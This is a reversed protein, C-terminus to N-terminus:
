LDSLVHDCKKAIALEENSEVVLCVPWVDLPSLVGNTTKGNEANLDNTIEISILPKLQELCRRRIHASNRGIGATFVLADLCGQFAVASAAIYQALRYVFMEVALMADQDGERKKELLRVMSREAGQMMGKLGSNKNLDLLVEDASKGLNEVAYSVIAPDVSGTRTSMMLGALPSFGMSTEVSKQGSVATVSAGSGLHCVIINYSQSEKRTRLIKAAKDAVFEV